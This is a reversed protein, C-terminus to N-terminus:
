AEAVRCARCYGPVALIEQFAGHNQRSTRDQVERLAFEVVQEFVFCRIYSAREGLTIVNALDQLLRSSHHSAAIAGSDPKSDGSCGWEVTHM